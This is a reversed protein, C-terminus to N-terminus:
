PIAIYQVIDSFLSPDNPHIVRLTFPYIGPTVSKAIHFTIFTHPRYSYLNPKNTFRRKIGDDKWIIGEPLGLLTYKWPIDFQYGYGLDNIEAEYRRTISGGWGVICDRPIDCGHRIIIPVNRTPTPEGLDINFSITELVPDVELNSIYLGLPQFYFDGNITVDTVEVGNIAQTAPTADLLYNDKYVLLGSTVKRFAQNYLGYDFKNPQRFELWLDFGAFNHYNIKLAKKSGNCENSLHKLTIQHSGSNAELSIIDDDTLWGIRHKDYANVSTGFFRASSLSDFMNYNINTCKGLLFNECYLTSSHYAMGKTHLFEHFIVTDFYKLSKGAPNDYCLEPNRYNQRKYFCHDKLDYSRLYKSISSKNNYTTGDIKINVKHPLASGNSYVPLTVGQNDWVTIIYDYKSLDLRGDRKANVIPRLNQWNESERTAKWINSDVDIWGFSDVKGFSEKNFSNSRILDNVQSAIRGTLEDIEFQAEKAQSKLYIVAVSHATTCLTNSSWGTLLLIAILMRIIHTPSSM